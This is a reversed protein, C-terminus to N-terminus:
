WTAGNRLPTHFENVRLITEVLDYLSATIKAEPEIRSMNALIWAKSALCPLNSKARHIWRYVLQSVLHFMMLLKFTHEVCSVYRPQGDLRGYQLPFIRNRWIRYDPFVPPSNHLGDKHHTRLVEYLSKTVWDELYRTNALYIQDSKLLLHVAFQKSLLLM